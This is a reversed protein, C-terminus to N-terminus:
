KIYPLKNILEYDKSYFELLIKYIDKDIHKKKITKNFHQLSNLKDEWQNRSHKDKIKKVILKLDEKLHSFRIINLNIEKFSKHEVFKHQPLLAITNKMLNFYEKSSLNKFNQIQNFYVGNYNDSMHYNYSSEFRQIPDRIVALFLIKDLDERKRKYNSIMYKLKTHNAKPYYDYFLRGLSTGATKPIHILEIKM